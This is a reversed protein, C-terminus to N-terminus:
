TGDPQPDPPPQTEGAAPVEVPIAEDAPAAEELGPLVPTPAVQQSERLISSPATARSSMISLVLALVMFLTGTTWTTRTLVSAAQRGALIGETPSAGGGMAALGGGKGAQLLIVVGLILGDLVLLFLLFGYM